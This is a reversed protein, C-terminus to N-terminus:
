SKIDDMHSRARRYTKSSSVHLLDAHLVHLGPQRSGANPRCRASDCQAALRLRQVALQSFRDSLPKQLLGYSAEPQGGVWPSQRSSTARPATGRPPEAVTQMPMQVPLLDASHRLHPSTLGRRATDPTQLHEACSLGSM